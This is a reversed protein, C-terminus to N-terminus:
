VGRRTDRKTEWVSSREHAGALAWRVPSGWAGERKKENGLDRPCQGASNKHLPGDEGRQVAGWGRGWPNECGAWRDGASGQAWQPRLGSRCLPHCPWHCQSNSPM